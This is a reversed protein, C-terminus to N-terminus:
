RGQRHGDTLPVSRAPRAAPLSACSSVHNGHRVTFLASDRTGRGLTFREASWPDYQGYLFLLHDGRTRAWQHVSRMLRQSLPGAPVGPPLDQAPNQASPPYRLLSGLEARDDLIPYGLQTGARWGRDGCAM